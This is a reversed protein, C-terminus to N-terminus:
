IDNENLLFEKLGEQIEYENSHIQLKLPHSMDLSLVGLLSKADVIYKNSSLDCEADIESIVSIFKQAEEVKSLSVLYTQM